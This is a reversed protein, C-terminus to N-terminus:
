EKLTRVFAVVDAVQREELGAVPKMKGHGETIVKKLDADSKAQIEKSGLAPLTVNFMKAIAPKGEGNPAHCGQCKAVYIPKGEPAGAYALGLFAAVSIIALLTTRM